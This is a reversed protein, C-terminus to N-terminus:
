KQCMLCAKAELRPIDREAAEKLGYTMSMLHGCTAKVRLTFTGALPNKVGKEETISTM